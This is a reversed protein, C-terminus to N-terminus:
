ESDETTSNAFITVIIGRMGGKCYSETEKLPSDIQEGRFDSSGKPWPVAAFMACAFTQLTSAYQPRGEKQKMWFESGM